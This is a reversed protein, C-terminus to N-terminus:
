SGTETGVAINRDEPRRKLHLQVRRVTNRFQSRFRRSLKLRIESHHPLYRKM